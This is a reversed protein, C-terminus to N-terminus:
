RRFRSIRGRCRIGDPLEHDFREYEHLYGLGIMNRTFKARNSRDPDGIWIQVDGSSHRDIFQAVLRAHDPEYLIDSGIMVDFKGLEPNEGDWNGTQYKIPPLGNGLVNRDLFERVRPHYDSATIDVGMRHLVISCLGLGCGIELVRKGALELKHINMAMVVSTPWVQGFVPWTASDIGPVADDGADYQNNDKLSDIVYSVEDILYTQRRLEFATM